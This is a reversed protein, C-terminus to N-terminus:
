QNRPTVQNGELYCEFVGGGALAMATQFRTQLGFFLQPPIVVPVRFRLQSTMAPLGNNTVLISSSYYQSAAVTTNNDIAHGGNIDPGSGYPLSDLGFRELYIADGIKLETYGSRLIRAMQEAITQAGNSAVAAANAALASVASENQGVANATGDLGMGAVVRMGVSFCEFWIDKPLTNASQMNTVFDAKTTNFFNFVSTSGAAPYALRHWLRFNPRIRVPITPDAPCYSGRKRFFELMKGPITGAVSMGQTRTAM